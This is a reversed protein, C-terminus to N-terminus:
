TKRFFDTYFEAVEEVTKGTKRAGKELKDEDGADGDDTLHGVDTINMVHKVTYGSYELARRLLDDMVYKRIHGIHTFDYVTPGCCYMTVSNSHLPEFQEISRSLTNYLKM